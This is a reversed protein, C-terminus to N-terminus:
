SDLQTLQSVSADEEEEVHELIFGCLNAADSKSCVPNKEPWGVM